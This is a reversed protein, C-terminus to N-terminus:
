LKIEFLEDLLRKVQMRKYKKGRSTKYGNENLYEAIQELTMGQSRLASAKVRAVNKNVESNKEIVGYKKACHAIFSVQEFDVKGITSDGVQELDRLIPLLKLFLQKQEETGDLRILLPKNTDSM